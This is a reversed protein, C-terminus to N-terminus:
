LGGGRLVLSGFLLPLSMFVMLVIFSNQNGLPHTAWLHCGSTYAQHVNSWRPKLGPLWTSVHPWSPHKWFWFYSSSFLSCTGCGLALNWSRVQASTSNVSCSWYGSNEGQHQNDVVTGSGPDPLSHFAAAGITTRSAGRSGSESFERPGGFWWLPSPRKRIQSVLTASCLTLANRNWWDKCLNQSQPLLSGGLHPRGM